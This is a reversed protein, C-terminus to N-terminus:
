KKGKKRKRRLLFFASTGAAAAFMVAGVTAGKNVNWKAIRKQWGALFKGLEPDKAVLGAYYGRRQTYIATLMAAPSVANIAAITTPGIKGDVAVKKGAQGAATQLLRPGNGHQVVTDLAATAVEPDQIQDLNNKLWFESMYLAKARDLTLGKINESPFRAKSIGYKTEGGPDKPDNVYGGEEKLLAAMALPFNNM